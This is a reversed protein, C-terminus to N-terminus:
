KFLYGTSTNYIGVWTDGAGNSALTKVSTPNPDFDDTGQFRGAFLVKDSGILAVSTGLSL